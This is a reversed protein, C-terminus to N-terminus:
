RNERGTRVKRIDRPLGDEGILVDVDVVGSADPELLALGLAQLAERPLRLRVLQLAESDQVPSADFMLLMEPLEVHQVYLDSSGQPARRRAPIMPREQTLGAPMAAPRMARAQLPSVVAPSIPRSVLVAVAISAAIGIGAAFALRRVKAGARLRASQREPVKASHLRVFTRAALDAPPMRQRDHGVYANWAEDLQPDNFPGPGTTM